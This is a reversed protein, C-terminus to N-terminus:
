RRWCVLGAVTAIAWKKSDEIMLDILLVLNIGLM